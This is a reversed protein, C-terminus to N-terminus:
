IYGNCAAFWDVSSNLKEIEAKNKRITKECVTIEKHLDSVKKETSDELAELKSM